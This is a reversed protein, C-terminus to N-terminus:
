NNDPELLNLVAQATSMDAELEQLEKERDEINSSLRYITDMVDSLHEIAERKNAMVEDQLQQNMENLTNNLETRAARVAEKQVTKAFEKMAEEKKYSPNMRIVALCDKDSSNLRRSLTESLVKKLEEKKIQCRNHFQRRSYEDEMTKEMVSAFKDITETFAAEIEAIDTKVSRVYRSLTENISNVESASGSSPRYARATAIIQAAASTRGQLNAGAAAIHSSNFVEGAKSVVSGIANKIKSFFGMM